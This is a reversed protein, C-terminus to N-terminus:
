SLEPLRPPHLRPALLQIIALAVLYAVSGIVFPVGFSGSKELVHGVLTAMLMGGFAGASGAIGIVSGVARSPFMDSALTYVNASFGQHAAAALGILLVATWMHSARYAFSVPVVALACILMSIKRAANVTRGRKILQSSLWGGAISGIDAIVYVATIPLAVQSLTLGHKHQLFEPLWYLYFFWVPDTLFKGLTIAWTQRLPLLTAWTIRAKTEVADSRIHALEAPTVRPHNEPKRYLVLWFILWLFGVAGIAVFAGRWGWYRTIAAVVVPTLIAGINTGANFIGTALASERKPFWEAVAKLSAPFVASEGFGLVIRLGIFANLTGAFATGVSAISWVAMAIAYGLRTGLRDIVRGAFILGLAYAGQFAAVLHSYDRESWHLDHQLTANLVGFINRDMYNKTVGLLLLSCIVWRFHGLRWPLGSHKTPSECHSKAESSTPEIHGSASNM